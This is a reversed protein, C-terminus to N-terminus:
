SAWFLCDLMSPLRPTHSCLGLNFSGDVVPTLKYRVLIEYM